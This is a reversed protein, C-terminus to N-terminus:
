YTRLLILKQNKNCARKHAFKFRKVPARPPVTLDDAKKKSPQTNKNDIM